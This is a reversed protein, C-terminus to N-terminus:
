RFGFEDLIFEKVGEPGKLHLWVTEDQRTRLVEFEFFPCCKLELKIWETLQDTSMHKTDMLFAFGDPLEHRKRMAHRLAEVLQGYRARDQPPIGNINCTLVSAM